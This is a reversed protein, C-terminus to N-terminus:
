IRLTKQTWFRFGSISGNERLSDRCAFGMWTGWSVSLHQCIKHMQEVFMTYNGCFVRYM